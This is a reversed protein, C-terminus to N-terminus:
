LWIATTTPQVHLSGSLSSTLPKPNQALKYHANHKETSCKGAAASQPQLYQAVVKLTANVTHQGVRM